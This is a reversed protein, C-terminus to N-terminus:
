KQWDVLEVMKKRIQVWNWQASSSHAIPQTTKLQKSPSLMVCSWPCGHIKNPASLHNAKWESLEWHNSINVLILAVFKGSMCNESGFAHIVETQVSYIPIRLFFFSFRFYSLPSHILTVILKISRGLVHKDWGGSGWALMGGQRGRYVLHWMGRLIM